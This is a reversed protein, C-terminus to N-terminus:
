TFRWVLSRKPQETTLTVVQWCSLGSQRVTCSLVLLLEFINLEIVVTFCAIQNTLARAPNSLGARSIEFNVDSRM